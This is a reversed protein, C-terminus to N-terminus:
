PYLGLEIMMRREEIRERKNLQLLRVTVRGQATLPWLKAGDLSFHQEWVDLRPHFLATIQQTLLDFSAIDSGKYRNCVWCSWCLNAESTEGGHKEAIIHDAEHRAFADAEPLLCYECRQSARERVLRRLETNIYTM